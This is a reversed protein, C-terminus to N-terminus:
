AVAEPQRLKARRLRLRFHSPTVGTARRFTYAFSSASAFGMAFAIAKVSDDGNLLRKAAEIRVTSVHDSVSCGRSARFGRTLQRISLNCLSALEGLSPPPQAAKLREDILRLRWSALGGIAPGDDMTTCFRALEIALQHTILEALQLSALGPRHAEEALRILLGRINPSVIDLSAELRRDTWEVDETLWLHVCAQALECVISVQQGPDGRIHLLQGPPVLFMEGLPEFRHPGWFAVYGARTNHPRPSLCLNLRYCDSQSMVADVPHSLAFRAIQVKGTPLHLEAEVTMTEQSDNMAGGTNKNTVCMQFSQAVSPLRRKPYPATRCSFSPRRKQLSSAFVKIKHVQMLALGANSLSSCACFIFTKQNKEESFFM